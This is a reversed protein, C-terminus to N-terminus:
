YRKVSLMVRLAVGKGLNYRKVSLKVRLAVGKAFMYRGKLAVSM